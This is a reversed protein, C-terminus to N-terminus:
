AIRVYTFVSAVSIGAAATTYTFTPSTTFSVNTSLASVSFLIPGLNIYPYTSPVGYTMTQRPINGDSYTNLGTVYTGSMTNYFNTFTTTGNSTYSPIFTLLGFYIGAPLTVNSSAYNNGSVM